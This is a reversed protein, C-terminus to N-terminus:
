PSGIREEVVVGGVDLIPKAKTVDGLIDDEIM